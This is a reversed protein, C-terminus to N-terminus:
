QTTAFNNVNGCFIKGTTHNHKYYHKGQQLFHYVPNGQKCACVHNQCIKSVDVATTENSWLTISVIPTKCSSSLTLVVLM